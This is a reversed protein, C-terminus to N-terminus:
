SRIFIYDTEQVLREGPRLVANPFGPHNPADPWIQTELCFGAFPGYHRGELGPVPVNLKFGAYFQLGPETTRVELGLGSYLSRALAVSRKAMRADSLCFNHDYLMQSGDAAFRRMPAMERFDFLTDDVPAIEGTPIQLADVPLYHAAAIMLDHGLADDRGDLNFYSHQCLNALTPKDTEAEYTVTLMGEGHLRYTARIRCTGPYGSRGDPDDIALVVRDRALHEIHWNRKAINHAGGHLHTVGKENCDLQYSVGDIAFRGGAIRNAARGPTAGFYSSYLPYDEFREFGLVLPAAHGELRLDQIVSGWTLVHATLGGGELRVRYVQEGSSTQGFVQRDAM